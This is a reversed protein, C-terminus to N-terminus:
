NLELETQINNDSVYFSHQKRGNKKSKYMAKDAHHFLTEIDQADDPAIATGASCQVFIETPVTIIPYNLQIFIRDFIKTIAIKLEIKSDAQTLLIFEDGALRALVDGERLQSNVALAFNTLVKDGTNHGYKDNIPKFLDLDIFTVGLITQERCARAIIQSALMELMKRNPLGTLQDKYAINQLRNNQKSIYQNAQTLEIIYKAQTRAYNWIVYGSLLFMTFITIFLTILIIRESNNKNYSHQKLESILRNSKETFVNFLEASHETNSIIQNDKRNLYKNVIKHFRKIEYLLQNAQERLKEDELAIVQENGDLLAEAYQEAQKLHLHLIDEISYNNDARYLEKFYLHANAIELKIQMVTNTWPTNKQSVEQSILYVYTLLLLNLVAAIGTILFVIRHNNSYFKSM